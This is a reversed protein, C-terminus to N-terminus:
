NATKIDEEQELDMEGPLPLDKSVEEEELEDVDHELWEPAEEMVSRETEARWPSTTDLAILSIVDM